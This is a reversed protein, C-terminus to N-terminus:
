RERDMDIDDILRGVEKAWDESCEEYIADLVGEAARDAHSGVGYRNIFTYAEILDALRFVKYAPESIMTAMADQLLWPCFVASNPITIKNKAPTPIDGTRSEDADHCLVHLVAELPFPTSTRAALELAIVLVRFVHDSVTQQKLTPVITWRPVISLALLDTLRM